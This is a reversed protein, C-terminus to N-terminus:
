SEYNEVGESIPISKEVGQFIPQHSFRSLIKSDMPTEIQLFINLSINQATM